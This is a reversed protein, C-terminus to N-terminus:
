LIHLIDRQEVEEGDLLALASIDHHVIRDPAHYKALAALYRASNRRLQYLKGLLFAILKNVGVRMSEIGISKVAEAFLHLLVSPVTALVVFLQKFKGHM